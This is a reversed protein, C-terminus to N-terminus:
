GDVNWPSDDWLIEAHIGRDNQLKYLVFLCVLVSQCGTAKSSQNSIHREKRELINSFVFYQKPIGEVCDVQMSLGHDSTM